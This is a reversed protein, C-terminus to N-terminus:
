DFADKPHTRNVTNWFLFVHFVLKRLNVNFNDFM